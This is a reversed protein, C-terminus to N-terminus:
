RGRGQSQEEDEGTERKKKRRPDPEAEGHHFSFIPPAFLTNLAETLGFSDKLVERTSIYTSQKEVSDSTKEGVSKGFFHESLKGFSLTRDIQSGKYIYEGAKFSIGQVVDSNAKYKFIVDVGSNHLSSIFARWDKSLKQAAKIKDFLQYRVKDSGKLAKRNVKTRDKAMFFGHKLTITKCAAVNKKLQFKDSITNGSDDVRNYIIHLHPHHNDHHRVILFQTNIIGMLALYEMAMALMNESNLRESDVESWSLSIHGVAKSLAPNMQRQLNFDKVAFSPDALRIGDGYLLEADKKNVVYRVCGGFSKGIIVKGIM